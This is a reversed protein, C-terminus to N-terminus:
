GSDKHAFSNQLNLLEKSMNLVMRQAEESLQSFIDAFEKSYLYENFVEGEGTRLWRENVNFESCILKIHKDSFNRKNVEIMALTSQSIGLRKAFENQSINLINRIRKIRTYL